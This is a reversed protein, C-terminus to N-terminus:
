AIQKIQYEEIVEKSLSFAVKLHPFLFYGCEEQLFTALADGELPTIAEIYSKTEEYNEPFMDLVQEAFDLSKEKIEEWTSSEQLNSYLKNQLIEVPSKATDTFLSLAMFAMVEEKHEALQQKMESTLNFLTHEM